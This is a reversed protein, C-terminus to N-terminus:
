GGVVIALEHVAALRARSTDDAGPAAAICILLVGLCCEEAFLLDRQQNSELRIDCGRDYAITVESQDGTVVRDGPLLAMGAVGALNQGERRVTVTGRPAELQAIAGDAGAEDDVCCLAGDRIPLRMNQPLRITCGFDFRIVASGGALTIVVDDRLLGQGAEGPSTSGAREVLVNGQATELTAIIEWQQGWASAMSALTLLLLVALLRPSRTANIMVEGQAIAIDAKLITTVYSFAMIAKFLFGFEPLKVGNGGACQIKDLVPEALQQTIGGRALRQSRFGIRSRCRRLKEPGAAPVTELGQQVVPQAM